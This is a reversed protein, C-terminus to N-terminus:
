RKTGRETHWPTSHWARRVMGQRLMSYEAMSHQAIGRHAIGPGSGLCSRRPWRESPIWSSDGGQGQWCTDGLQSPPQVQSLRQRCPQVLVAGSMSDPASVSPPQPLRSGSGQALPRPAPLARLLCLAAPYGQWCWLWTPEAAAATWALPPCPGPQCPARALIDGTSDVSAPVPHPPPEQFSSLVRQWRTRFHQAGVQQRPGGHGATGARLWGPHSSLSEDQAEARQEQQASSCCVMRWLMGEFHSHPKGWAGSSCHGQSM